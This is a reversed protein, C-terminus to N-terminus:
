RAAPRVHIRRSIMRRQGHIAFDIAAHVELDHATLVVSRRRTLEGLFTQSIRSAIIGKVRSSSKRWSAYSIIMRNFQDCGAAPVAPVWMESSM